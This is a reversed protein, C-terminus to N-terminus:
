RKREARAKAKARRERQLMAEGRRVIEELQARTPQHILMRQRIIELLPSTGTGYACAVAYASLDAAHTTIDEKNAWVHAWIRLDPRNEELLHLYRDVAEQEKHGRELVWSIWRTKTKEAYDKLILSLMGVAHRYEGGYKSLLRPTVVARFDDYSISLVVGSLWRAVIHALFKNDKDKAKSAHYGKPYTAARASWDRVFQKWDGTEGAVGAVVICPAKDHTGSEDVVVKIVAIAGDPSPAFCGFWESYEAVTLM